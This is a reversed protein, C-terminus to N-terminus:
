RIAGAPMYKKVDEPTRWRAYHESADKLASRLAAHFPADCPLGEGCEYCTDCMFSMAASELNSSQLWTKESM